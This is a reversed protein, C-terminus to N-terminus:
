GGIPPCAPEFSMKIEHTMALGEKMGTDNRAYRRRGVSLYAIKEETILPTACFYALWM